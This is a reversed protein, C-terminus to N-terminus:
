AIRGSATLLGERADCSVDPLACGTRLPIDVAGERANCSVPRERRRDLAM